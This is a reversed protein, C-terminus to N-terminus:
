LRTSSATPCPHFIATLPQHDTVLTLRRGFLYQNFKRVGWVLGLAEKDIQSYNREALRRLVAELNELHEADSKGTVIIDDLMAEVGLIGQLTQEMARQWISPATKIGFPLRNYEFLGKHTNITFYQKSDEEVKMQLYVNKIYLKGFRKGGAMKAFSNEPNITM